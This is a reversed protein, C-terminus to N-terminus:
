EAADAEVAKDLANRAIRTILVTVLVTALLGVVRMAWQAPSTGSDAASGGIYGVYTFLLTGPMMGIWSALLYHFFSVKTLGYGYNQLNFPFVPTLRTLFVIKWGEHAVADDIAKFKPNGATKSAVWGRALYRGVLFAASAGLTSSFSVLLFGRFLGYIAGAGLTLLSGPLLLVCAVVYLLVFALVGVVGQNEIWDLSSRIAGQIDFFRSLLVIGAIAALAVLLKLITSGRRTKRSDNETDPGDGSM